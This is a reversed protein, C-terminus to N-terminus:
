LVLARHHDEAPWLAEGEAGLGVLRQSPPVLPVKSFVALAPKRINRHM